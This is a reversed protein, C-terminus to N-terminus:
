SLVVAASSIVGGNNNYMSINSGMSHFIEPYGDSNIDVIYGNNVM